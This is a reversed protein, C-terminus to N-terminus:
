AVLRELQQIREVQYEDLCFLPTIVKDRQPRWDSRFYHNYQWLSKPSSRCPEILTVKPVGDSKRITVM